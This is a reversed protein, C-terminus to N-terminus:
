RLVGVVAVLVALVALWAAGAARVLRDGARLHARVALLLLVVIAVAAVVGVPPVVFGVLLGGAGALEALGIRAFAATSHGLHEAQRTMVARRALKMIGLVTLVAAVITANIM